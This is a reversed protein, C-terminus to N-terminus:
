IYICKISINMVRNQNKESLQMSISSLIIASLYILIKSNINTYDM